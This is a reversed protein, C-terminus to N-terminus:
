KMIDPDRYLLTLTLIRHSRTQLKQHLCDGAKGWDRVSINERLACSGRELCTLLGPRVESSEVELEVCLVLM